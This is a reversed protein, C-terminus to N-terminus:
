AARMLGLQRLATVGDDLGVEETILGGEVKLITIGTFRMTKGTAAPLSGVPMDDFAEGTHTGGGIWQGVVYDGEAILDATGGFALDPFAARFKRAFARVEDRGRCPAHLSYEFRIDPAALEDIVDPNFDPGWFDTFWRGVITKNEEISM